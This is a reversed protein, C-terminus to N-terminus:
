SIVPTHFKFFGWAYFWLRCHPNGPALIPFLPLYQDDLKWSYMWSVISSYIRPFRFIGHKPWRIHIFLQSMPFSGSAPFYQPCFFPTVSFPITPYCWWSLPYSDSCVESSLSPCPLKAHQLGHPRLSDSMVQVCYHVLMTITTLLM